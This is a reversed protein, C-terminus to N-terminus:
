PEAGGGAARWWQYTVAQLASLVALTTDTSVYFSVFEGTLTRVALAAAFGVAVNLAYFGAVLGACELLRLAAGPLAAPSFRGWRRSAAYTAVSTAAVVSLLYAGDTM